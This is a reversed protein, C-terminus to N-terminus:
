IVVEISGYGITYTNHRQSQYPINFIQYPINIVQYKSMRTEM